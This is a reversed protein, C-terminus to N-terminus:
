PSPHTNNVNTDGDFPITADDAQMLYKRAMGIGGFTLLQSSASM